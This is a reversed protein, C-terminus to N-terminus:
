SQKDKNNSNNNSNQQNLFWGIAGMAAMYLIGMIMSQETTPSGRHCSEPFIAMTYLIAALIISLAFITSICGTGRKNM